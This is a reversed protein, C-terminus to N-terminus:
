KLLIDIFNDFFNKESYEKAFLSSIAVSDKKISKYNDKIMLINNMIDNVLLNGRKLIIANSSSIYEPIGGSFTTILPTSSVISEVMTLGAAEECISPLVCVNAIKYYKWIDNHPIFGTFVIRENNSDVMKKIKIEFKSTSNDGFFHSGVILLKIEKNDIKDFAKILEYIGKEICIRGVFLIIFDKDSFGYKKYLLEKYHNDLTKSFVNTNIGNKLLYANKLDFSNYLSKVDNIIYKSVAILNCKNLFNINVNNTMRNHLHYYFNNEYKRSIKKNKLIRLLYESNEIIVKDFKKKLLLKKVRSIIFIKKFYRKNNEKNFMHLFITLLKDFINILIPEKYFIFKTNNYEDVKSINNEDYICYLYIDLKKNLENQNIISEILTEVAGGKYAPIPLNCPSIILIKKM